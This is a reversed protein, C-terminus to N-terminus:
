GYRRPGTQVLKSITLGSLIPSFNGEGTIEYFARGNDQHPTFVLRGRLLSHLVNRKQGNTSRQKWEALEKEVERKITSADMKVPKKHDIKLAVIEAQRERTTKIKALLADDAGIKAVTEALRTLEAEVKALEKTLDPAKKTVKLTESTMKNIAGVIREPTFIEREIMSLVAADVVPQPMTLANKCAEPGRQHFNGCQYGWNSLSVLSGGCEGCVAAGSLLHKGQPSGLRKAPHNEPLPPSFREQVRKWLRDGLIDKTSARLLVCRISHGTWAQVRGKERPIPAPCNKANLLLATKRLSEGGVWAEAMRKIVKAQEPMQERTSHQRVGNAMVPVNRWGYPAPGIAFGAEKKKKLGDKTHDSIKERYQEDGFGGVNAILKDMARDLTVKQETQYHWVELGAKHLRKLVYGTEFQERGLRSSDAMILAQFPPTPKLANLLKQLGKRKEFEAGSIKDDEYIHAPNVTWGKKKAFQLAGERQRTVSKEEETKGEEKTSKRCYIAANM